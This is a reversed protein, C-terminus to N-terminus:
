DNDIPPIRRSARNRAKKVNSAHHRINAAHAGREVDVVVHQLGHRFRGGRAAV